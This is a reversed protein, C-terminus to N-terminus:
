NKAKKTSEKPTKIGGAFKVLIDLKNSLINLTEYNTTTKFIADLGYNNVIKAKTIYNTLEDEIMHSVYLKILRVLKTNPGFFYNDEKDSKVNTRTLNIIKILEYNGDLARSLDNFLKLPSQMTLLEDSMYTLLCITRLMKNMRTNPSKEKYETEEYIRIDKLFSPVMKFFDYGPGINIIGGHSKIKNYFLLFKNKDIVVEDQERTNALQVRRSQREPPIIVRPELRRKGNRSTPAQGTAVTAPAAPLLSPVPVPAPIPITPIARFIKNERNINPSTIPLREIDRATLM